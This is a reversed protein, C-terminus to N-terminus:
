VIEEVENWFHKNFHWNVLWVFLGFEKLSDPKSLRWELFTRYPAETYFYLDGNFGFTFVGKEKHKLRKVKGEFRELYKELIAKTILPKYDEGIYPHEKRLFKRYEIRIPTLKMGLIPHIRLSFGKVLVYNKEIGNQIPEKTTLLYPTSAMMVLELNYYLRSFFIKMSNKLEWLNIKEM